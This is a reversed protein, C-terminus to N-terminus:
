CAREHEHDEDGEYEEAEQREYEEDERDDDEEESENQEEDSEREMYNGSYRYYISTCREYYKILSKYPIRILAHLMLDVLSYSPSRHGRIYSKMQAFVLECPNLEPSYKPLFLLAINQEELL